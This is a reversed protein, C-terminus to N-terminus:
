APTAATAGVRHVGHRGTRTSYLHRIAVLGALSALAGLELARTQTAGVRWGAETWGFVNATRSLILSALSGAEFVAAAGALLTLWRSARVAAVLLLGALLVSVAVNIPFGIKVVASGPVDGPLDRYMQLWERLHVFGAALIFGAAPVAALTTPRVSRLRNLM